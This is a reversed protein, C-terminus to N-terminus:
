KDSSTGSMTTPYKTMLMGFGFSNKVGEEEKLGRDLM